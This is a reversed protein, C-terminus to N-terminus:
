QFHQMPWGLLLQNWEIKMVGFQEIQVKALLASLHRPYKNVLKLPFSRHEGIHIPPHLDIDKTLNM